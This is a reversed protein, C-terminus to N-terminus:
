FVWRFELHCAHYEEKSRALELDIIILSARKLFSALLSVLPDSPDDSPQPVLVLGNESRKLETSRSTPSEIDKTVANGLDTSDM